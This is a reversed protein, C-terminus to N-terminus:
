YYAAIYRNNDIDLSKMVIAYSISNTGEYEEIEFTDRDSFAMEERARNVHQRAALATNYLRM